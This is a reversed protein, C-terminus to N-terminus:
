FAHIYQIDLACVLLASKTPYRIHTKPCPPSQALRYSGTWAISGKPLPWLSGSPSAAFILDEIALAAAIFQLIFLLLTEELKGTSFIYKHTQRGTIALWHAIFDQGVISLTSMFCPRHFRDPLDPMQRVLLKHCTHTYRGYSKVKHLGCFIM